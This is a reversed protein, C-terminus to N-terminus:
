KQHLSPKLGFSELQIMKLEAFFRFEFDESRTIGNYIWSVTWRMVPKYDKEEHPLYKM